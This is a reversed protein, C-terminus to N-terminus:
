GPWMHITGCLAPPLVKILLSVSPKAGGSVDSALVGACQNLTLGGNSLIRRGRM